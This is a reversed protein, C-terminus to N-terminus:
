KLMSDIEKLREKLAVVAVSDESYMDKKHFVNFAESIQNREILLAMKNELEKVKENTIDRVIETVSIHKVFKIYEEKLREEKWDRYAKQTDSECRGSFFWVLDYSMGANLLENNFFKRMNHSRIHAFKGSPVENKLRIDLRKYMSTLGTQNIGFLSEGDYFELWYLVARTAEPSCFTTYPQQTKVRTPHLTTIMTTRDIGDLFEKRTLSLLEASGMGSSCQLLIIAQNRPSSYSLAKRIDDSTPIYRNEKLPQVKETGTSPLFIDHRVYFRKICNFFSRRTTPALHQIADSYEALYDGVKRRNMRINSEQETLAEDILQTPTKNTINCLYRLAAAMNHATGSKRNHLKIYKKFTNDLKIDEITHMYDILSLACFM